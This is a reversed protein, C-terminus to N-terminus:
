AIAQIYPVALATSKDNGPSFLLNFFFAQFKHLCYPQFIDIDWRKGYIRIIEEDSLDIKTSMVALWKRSHRHRVFVIKVAQ